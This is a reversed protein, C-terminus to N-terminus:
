IVERIDGMPVLVGKGGAKNNAAWSATCGVLEKPGTYQYYSEKWDKWPTKHHAIRQLAVDLM